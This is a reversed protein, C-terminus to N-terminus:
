AADGDEQSTTVVGGTIVQGFVPLGERECGLLEWIPYPLVHIGLRGIHHEVCLPTLNQPGEVFAQFAADTIEPLLDPYRHALKELDVGNVLSFEVRSHHLQINGSTGCVQCKLLGQRALRARAQNFLAYHPDTARPEHDPFWMELHITTKQTHAPTLM